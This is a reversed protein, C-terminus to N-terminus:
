QTSGDTKKNRHFFQEWDKRQPMQKWYSIRPTILAFALVPSSMCAQKLAEFAELAEKLYLVSM